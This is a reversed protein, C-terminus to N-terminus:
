CSELLAQATRKLNDTTMFFNYTSVEKVKGTDEALQEQIFEVAKLGEPKKCDWSRVTLRFTSSENVIIEKM